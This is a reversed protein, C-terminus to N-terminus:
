VAETEAGKFYPFYYSCTTSLILYILVHLTSLIKRLVPYGPLQWSDIKIQM